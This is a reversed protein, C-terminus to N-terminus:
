SAIPATLELRPERPPDVWPKLKLEDPIRLPEPPPAPRGPHSRLWAARDQLREVELKLVADVARPYVYLDKWPGPDDGLKGDHALQLVRYHADARSLYPILEASMPPRNAMFARIDRANTVLESVLESEGASLGERWARDFLQELLLFRGAAAGQRARLDRSLLLNTESKQLLPAYFADLQEKIAKLESENAKQATATDTAYKSAALTRKSFVNSLYLAVLTSAATILALWDSLEMGVATSAGGDAM